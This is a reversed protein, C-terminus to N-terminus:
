SIESMISDILARAQIGYVADKAHSRFTATYIAIERPQTITVEASPLEVIVRNEDYVWFPVTPWATRNVTAPIIGLSVRPLSMAATLRNLQGAMVESGGLGTRLVSEELLIAFRRTGEHLVQQRRIRAAVAAQTDDPVGQASIIAGLLVSAYEETQLLGPVCLSQYIRFHSTAEYLPVYSEQLRRMGTRQRRRWEVYMGEVIRMSEMLDDIQDSADCHRCWARIDDASPTQRGHEIKSVKSGDHWGALRALEKATHGREVRIERLRLALARRAAEVSSVSM